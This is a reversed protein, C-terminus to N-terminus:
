CFKDNVHTVLSDRILVDPHVSMQAVVAHAIHDSTLLPLTALIEKTFEEPHDPDPELTDSIETLVGGPSVQGVRIKNEGIRQVERRWGEVVCTLALKSANYFVLKPDPFTRHGAISNIFIVQGDKIGKELMLNISLQACLSAAVVNVNLLKRWTESSEKSLNRNNLIGANCICVDVQGLEPHNQIWDFMRRIDEDKDLDCEFGFFKGRSGSSKELEAFDKEMTELRTQRRACGVVKMGHDVSLQRAIAEGIGASAGTVLAVRGRFRDM